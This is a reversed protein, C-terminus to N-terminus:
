PVYTRSDHREARRLGPEMLKKGKSARRGRGRLGSAHEPTRLFGGEELKNTQKKEELSKMLSSM